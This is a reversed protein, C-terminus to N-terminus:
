QRHKSAILQTLQALAAPKVLHHDFGAQRARELHEEGAYGSLAILTTEAFGPMVRLRRAVEYGDMEPPGIDLLIVDPHFDAAGQLASPGDSAVKVEHGELGLLMATSEAADSNDDVVLIRKPANPQQM